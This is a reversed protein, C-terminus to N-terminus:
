IDESVRDGAEVKSLVTVLQIKVCGGESIFSFVIVFYRVWFHGVRARVGAM